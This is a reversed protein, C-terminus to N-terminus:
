LFIWIGKELPHLIWNFVLARKSCLTSSQEVERHKNTKANHRKKFYVLLGKGIIAASAGSAAAVLTTPFPEPEAVTFTVTESTGTNEFGDKAYLTINHLGSTLGTITTNGTITVNDKGDLSYGMWLAPKNVIFALSVDSTVYTKNEPSVVSLKSSVTGYGFPTYKENTVYPTVSPGYPWSWIGDPYTETYGGIAYLMDNVVAVALSLRNTPVAAGFTWSDNEPDYVLNIYPPEPFNFDQGLVYIRKPANVGVTAASAGYVTSSPLPAGQSWSDNEVNYIQTLNSAFMGGIIYIKNEVVASAYAYSATPMPAKTTWTDTTPDYVENLTGNSDGGIVYIKDSVVNATIYSRPTPMPTKTEWTDTAPDYVENTEDRICYIKNQYVATAFGVRSTPMPAKFTWTDAAPDYEENTGVVGGTYPLPGSRTGGGGSRTSGGIAYIKGNVVAVGLGARAVHMPAKSTWSNEVVVASSSAPKVVIICLGVLFVLVLLLAAIKGM